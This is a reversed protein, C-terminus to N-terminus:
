GQHINLIYREFIEDMHELLAAKGLIDSKRLLTNLGEVSLYALYQESVPRYSLHWPECAIGGNFTQYPFFFGYDSANTALWQALGSCPGQGSYESELLQLQYDKALGNADYYDIDCGWHHRSAGPLASYLMIARCIQWDDMQSTDLPKMNGDLVTRQGSFKGNWIALQREFSRFGSAVQLDFGATAAAQQLAKLPELVTVAIQKGKGFEVLHSESLGYLINQDFATM